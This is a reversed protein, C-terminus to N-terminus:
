GGVAAAPVEGEGVATSEDADSELPPATAAGAAQVLPLERGVLVGGEKTVGATSAETM